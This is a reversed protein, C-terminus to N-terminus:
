GLGKKWEEIFTKRDWIKGGFNGFLESQIQCDLIRGGSDFFYEAFCSFAIKSSDKVLSFMSEGSFNKGLKVGYLGAILKGNQSASCCAAKGQHFLELYGPIMEPLIWTGDQDKRKIAMCKKMIDQFNTEFEIGFDHSRKLPRLSKPIKFSDPTIVM